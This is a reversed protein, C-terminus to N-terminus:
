VGLRSMFERNARQGAVLSERTDEDSLFQDQEVVLWGEYGIEGLAAVASEIGAEGTGLPCFVGGHIAASLDEGREAVGRLVSPDCDKIHVHRILSAYDRIAQTPSRM